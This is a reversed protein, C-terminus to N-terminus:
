LALGESAIFQAVLKEAEEVSAVAVEEDLIPVLLQDNEGFYAYACAQADARTWVFGAVGDLDAMATFGHAALAAGVNDVAELKWNPIPITM